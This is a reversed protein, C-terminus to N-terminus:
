DIVKFVELPTKMGLALHPRETNYYHIYEPIEKQYVRLKRPLHNLCEDQLTRLLREIHGNDSSKRVRSHRHAIGQKQLHETFYTSFESDHDSQVTQFSFPSYRQALKESLGSVGILTLEKM